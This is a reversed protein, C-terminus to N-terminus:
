WGRWGERPLPLANLFDHRQQRVSSAPHRIRSIERRAAVRLDVVHITVGGAPIPGSIPTVDGNSAM